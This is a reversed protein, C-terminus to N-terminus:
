APGKRKVRQWDNRRLERVVTSAARKLARAIARASLGREMQVQVEIREELSLQQYSRGM